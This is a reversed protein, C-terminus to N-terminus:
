VYANFIHNRFKKKYIVIKFSGLSKKQVFNFHKM